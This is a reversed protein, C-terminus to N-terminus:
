RTAILVFGDERAITHIRSGSLELAEAAAVLGFDVAGSYLADLVEQTDAMAICALEPKLRRAASEEPGGRPGAHAVVELGREQIARCEAVIRKWLEQTFEADALGTSHAAIRQFLEEERAQDVTATKFRRAVLACALRKELLAIIEDDIRDIEARVSELNM